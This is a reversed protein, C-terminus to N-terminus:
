DNFPKEDSNPSGAVLSSLCKHHYRRTPLSVVFYRSTLENRYRVNIDVGPGSIVLSATQRDFRIMLISCCVKNDQNIEDVAYRVIEEHPRRYM